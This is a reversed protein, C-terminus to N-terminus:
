GLGWKVSDGLVVNSAVAQLRDAEEVSLGARYPLGDPTERFVAAFFVCAALYTGRETPHSGDVRWLGAHRDAHREKSLTASWAYGIPAVAVRLDRAIALYGEEVASQMSAYNVLGEASWGHRRAWTLFFMPQAGASRVMDVLQRAAPYMRTERLRESAPIQSQEQLVVVNWRAARLSRLADRSVVHDVFSEAPNAVLGTEVFHHGARALSAFIAPLNNVYSKERLVAWGFIAGIGMVSAIAAVIPMIQGIHGRAVMGTAIAALLVVFTVMGGRFWRGQRREPWADCQAPTASDRKRIM